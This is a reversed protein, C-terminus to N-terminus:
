EFIMVIQQGLRVEDGHNLPCPNAVRQNNVFTGNRSHNDTIYWDNGVQILQAHLRSIHASNLRLHNSDIRGINFPSNMLPIKAQTGNQHLLLSSASFLASNEYLTPSEEYNYQNLSRTQKRSSAQSLPTKQAPRNLLGPGTLKQMLTFFVLSGSIGLVALSAIFIIEPSLLSEDNGVTPGSIPTATATATGNVPTPEVHISQIQLLVPEGVMTDVAQAMGDPLSSILYTGELSLTTDCNQLAHVEILLLELEGSFPQGGLQTFAAIITGDVDTKGFGPM